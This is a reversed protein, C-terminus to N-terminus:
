RGPGHCVDDNKWTMERSKLQALKTMLVLLICITDRDRQTFKAFLLTMKGYYFRNAALVFSFFFSFFLPCTSVQSKKFM